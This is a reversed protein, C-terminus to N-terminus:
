MYVITRIKTLPWKSQVNDVFYKISLKVLNEDNTLFLFFLIDMVGFCFLVVDKSGIFEFCFALCYVSFRM